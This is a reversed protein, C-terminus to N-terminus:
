EDGVESLSSTTALSYQDVFEEIYQDRDDSEYDKGGLAVYATGVNVLIMAALLAPGLRYGFILRGLWNEAPEASEDLRQRVKAYFYPDPEIEPLNELSSLTRLVEDEVRKKNDDQDTM